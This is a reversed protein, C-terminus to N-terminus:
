DDTLRFFREDYHSIAFYLRSAFRATKEKEIEFDGTSEEKLANLFLALVKRQSYRPMGVMVAPVFHEACDYCITITHGGVVEHLTVADGDLERVNLGCIICKMTTLDSRRIEEIHQRAREKIDDPARMADIIEEVHEGIHAHFEIDEENTKKVM